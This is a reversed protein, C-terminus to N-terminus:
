KSRSTLEIAGGKSWSDQFQPIRIDERNKREKNTDIGLVRDRQRILDNNLVSDSIPGCMFQPLGMPLKDKDVQWLAVTKGYTPALDSMLKHEMAMPMRPAVMTGSKVEYGHSYWFKKEDEPLLNFMKETIIYEIGVIKADSRDSDMILAQMVDENIHMIYEHVPIQRKVNNGYCRISSIHTDFQKLPAFNQMMSSMSEGVRSKATEKDGPVNEGGRAHEAFLKKQSSKNKNYYWAGGLLLPVGVMALKANSSM